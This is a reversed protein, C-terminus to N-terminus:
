WKAAIESGFAERWDAGAPVIGDHPRVGRHTAPIPARRASAASSRTPRTSCCGACPRRHRPRLTGLHEQSRDVIVPGMGEQLAFDQTNIGEIGTFTQTKQAARDILYDNPPNRKLQFTGPILDDKGRGYRQEFRRSM